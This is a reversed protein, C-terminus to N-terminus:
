ACLDEIMIQGPGLYVSKEMYIYIYIMVLTIDPYKRLAAGTYCQWNERFVIFVAYTAPSNYQSLQSTVYWMFLRFFEPFYKCTRRVLLKQAKRDNLINVPGKNSIFSCETLVTKIFPNWLYGPAKFDVSYPPVQYIERTQRAYYVCSNVHGLWNECTEVM